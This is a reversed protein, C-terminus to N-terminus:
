EKKVIKKVGIEGKTSFIRLLYIGNKLNSTSISTKKETLIKQGLYNFVEIREISGKIKVNLTNATPNPFVSIDLLEFENSSLTSCFDNSLCSAINKYSLIQNNTENSIDMPSTASIRSYMMNRSLSDDVHTANWTHGYEHIWLNVKRHELLFGNDENVWNYRRENCIGGLFSYGAYQLVNRNTFFTAADPDSSFGSNPDNGWEKFDDLISGKGCINFALEYCAVTNNDPTIENNTSEYFEIIKKDIGFNDLFFASVENFRSTLLRETTLVGGFQDKTAQDYAIAIELCSTTLLSNKGNKSREIISTGTQGCEYDENIAKSSPM